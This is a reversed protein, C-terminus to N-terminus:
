ESRNPQHALPSDFGWLGLAMPNQLRNTQWNWCKRTDMRHTSLISSEHRQARSGLDRRDALELVGM